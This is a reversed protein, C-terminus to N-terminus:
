ATRLVGRMVGNVRRYKEQLRGANEQIKRDESGEVEQIKRADKRCKGTNERVIGL